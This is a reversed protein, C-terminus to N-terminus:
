VVSKRDGVTIGHGAMAATADLYEDAFRFQSEGERDVGLAKFWMAWWDQRGLLPILASPTSRSPSDWNRKASSYRSAVAAIAPCPIM